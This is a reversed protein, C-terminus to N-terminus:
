KFLQSVVGGLATVAEEVRWKDRGDGVRNSIARIHCFHEVGMAECVAAVAAGEMQEVAPLAGDTLYKQSEGSANVTFCEVSDLGTIREMCYEKIYQKPLSAVRDYVVEVVQCVALREDCAGAIGCLVVDRTPKLSLYRATMAAAEAMGVGVIVVEAEPMLQRFATAEVETPFLFVPQNMNLM